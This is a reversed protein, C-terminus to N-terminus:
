SSERPVHRLANLQCWQEKSKQACWRQSSRRREPMQDEEPSMLSFPKGLEPDPAHNTVGESRCQVQSMQLERPSM